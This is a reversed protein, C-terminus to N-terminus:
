VIFGELHINIKLPLMLRVNSLVYLPIYYTVLPQSIKELLNISGICPCVLISVVDVAEITASRVLSHTNTHRDHINISLKEKNYIYM